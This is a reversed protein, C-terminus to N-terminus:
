SGDLRLFLRIIKYLIQYILFYFHFRSVFHLLRLCSPHVFLSIFLRCVQMNVKLVDLPTIALHTTGASLMGGFACVAYYEPTSVRLGKWWERNDGPGQDMMMEVDVVTEM